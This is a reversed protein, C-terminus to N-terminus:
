AEILSAQYEAFMLDNYYAEADDLIMQEYDADSLYREWRHRDELDKYYDRIEKERLDELRLM